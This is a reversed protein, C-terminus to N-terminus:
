RFLFTERQLLFALSTRSILFTRRMFTGLLFTHIPIVRTTLMAEQKRFTRFTRHILFTVTAFTNMVFTRISRMITHLAAIDVRVSHFLPDIVPNQFLALTCASRNTSKLPLYSRINEEKFKFQMVSVQKQFVM